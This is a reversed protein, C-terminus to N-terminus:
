HSYGLLSEFTLNNKELISKLKDIAILQLQRIREKTLKFDTAIQDLTQEEYGCVGFRRCIIERHKEPLELVSNIIDQRMDNEELHTSPEYHVSDSVQEVDLYDCDQQNFPGTQLEIFIIQEIKDLSLGMFNATEQHSPKHALNKTLEKHAKKYQKLEKLIHIPFRVNNSQNMIARDISQKIWYMAYTTLRTGMDPNFRDVAQMLGLNGEQVLDLFSLGRNVYLYAIKVVFRFNSKILIERAKKDGNINLEAYNKEAEATLLETQHIENIYINTTSIESNCLGLSCSIKKQPPIKITLLNSPLYNKPTISNYNNKPYKLLANNM